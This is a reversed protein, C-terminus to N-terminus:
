CPHTLSANKVYVEHLIVHSWYELSLNSDSMMACIKDALTYHPQETIANQFSAGAGTIELTYGSKSICGRFLASGALKNGQDTRVRCLSDKLGHM